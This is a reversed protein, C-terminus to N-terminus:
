MESNKRRKLRLHVYEYNATMEIVNDLLFQFKAALQVIPDRVDIMEDLARLTCKDLISDEDERKELDALAIDVEDEHV